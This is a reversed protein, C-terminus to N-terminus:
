GGGDPALHHPQGRHCAVFLRVKWTPMELIALHLGTCGHRQEGTEDVMNIDIDGARHELLVQVTELEGVTIAQWFARQVPLPHREGGGAVQQQQAPIAAGAAGDM